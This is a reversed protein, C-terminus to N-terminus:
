KPRSRTPKTREESVLEAAFLELVLEEAQDVGSDVV